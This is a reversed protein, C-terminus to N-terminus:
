QRLTLWRNKAKKMPHQAAPGYGIQANDTTKKKRRELVRRKTVVAVRERGSEGVRKLPLPCRENEREGGM